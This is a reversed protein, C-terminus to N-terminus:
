LDLTKTKGSKYELIAEKALNSLKEKSHDFTIQWTVEDLIMEAVEDQVQSPLNGLKTLAEKLKVTM